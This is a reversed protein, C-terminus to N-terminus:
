SVCQKERKRLLMMLPEPVLVIKDPSHDRRYCKQLTETDFSKIKGGYLDILEQPTIDVRAITRDRRSVQRYGDKWLMDIATGPPHYCYKSKLWEM